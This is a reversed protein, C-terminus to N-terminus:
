TGLEGDLSFIIRKISKTSKEWKKKVEFWVLTMIFWCKPRFNNVNM